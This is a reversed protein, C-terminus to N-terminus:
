TAGEQKLEKNESGILGHLMFEVMDAAVKERPLDNLPSSEGELLNFMLFGMILGGAARVAVAPAIRGPKDASQMARYIGEFQSFLPKFFLEAWVKKLEPDRAVEGMLAPMRSMEENQILDFRNQMIQAFVVAINERPIRYVLDLLPATIILNKIVAIFLERKSPYYLYITGVAVGAKGAIDPLTAATFGKRTFVDMAAKLIQARRELTVRKKRTERDAM